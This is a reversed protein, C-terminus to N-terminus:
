YGAKRAAKEIWSGMNEYGDDKNWYYLPYENSVM